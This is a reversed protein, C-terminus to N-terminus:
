AIIFNAALNFSLILSDDLIHAGGIYLLSRLESLLSLSIDSLHKNFILDVINGGESTKDLTSM